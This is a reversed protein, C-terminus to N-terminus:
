RCSRFRSVRRQNVPQCIQQVPQCVQQVPQCVQEQVVVQQQEVAHHQVVNQQIVPQAYYAQNLQLAQLVNAQQIARLEALQAQVSVANAAVLQQQQLFQVQRALKAKHQLQAAQFQANFQDARGYVRANLFGFDSAVAVDGACLPILALLVAITRM